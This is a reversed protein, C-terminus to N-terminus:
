EYLGKSAFREKLERKLVKGFTNRPLPNNLFIIKKPCKYSAINEKCYAILEDKSLDKEERLYIVATVQEGWKEHPLGIVAAELIDPHKFLVNEVEAAYVNEGGSIIMDKKRDVIYLYGDEDFRGMDGTYFWLGEWIEQIFGDM